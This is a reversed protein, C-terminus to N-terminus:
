GAGDFRFGSCMLDFRAIRGDEVQSFTQQEVLYWTGEERLRISYGVCLCDGVRSIRSREINFRDAEGFWQRYKGALNSAGLPTLLGAPILLRCRVQPHFSDALREFDRAGLCEVIQEGMKKWDATVPETDVATAQAM